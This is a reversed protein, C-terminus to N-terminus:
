KSMKWIIFGLFGILLLSICQFKWRWYKTVNLELDIPEISNSWALFVDAMPARGFLYKRQDKRTYSMGIVNLCNKTEQFRNWDGFKGFTHEGVITAVPGINWIIPGSDIDGAQDGVDAPYERLARLGFHSETFIRKFIQYQELAFDRDMEVLFSLILAQSSGRASEIIHGDAQTYHPILGYNDLNNKVKNLWYNVESQYSTDLLEKALHVSAMAVMMDAPWANGQYSELFPSESNKMANVIEQCNQQYMQIDRADRKPKQTLLLKQALLYNSWGRYYAGYELPLNKTFVKQGQPSFISDVSKTIEDLGHQFIKSSDPQHGILNSWTLGYMAHFFIFGEPFQEQLRSAEGDKIKTQIYNLQHAVDLNYPTVTSQKFKTRSYLAFNIALISFAITWLVFRLLLKIKM